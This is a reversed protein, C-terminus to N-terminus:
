QMLLFLVALAALGGGAILATSGGGPILGPDTGPDTGNGTDNGDDSAEVTITGCSTQKARVTRARTPNPHRQTVAM